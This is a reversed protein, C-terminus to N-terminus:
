RNRAPTTANHEKAKKNSAVLGALTIAAVVGWAIIAILEM